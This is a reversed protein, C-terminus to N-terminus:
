HERIVYPKALGAAIVILIGVAGVGVVASGLDRRNLWRWLPDSTLALLSLMFILILAMDFKAIGRKVKMAPKQWHDFRKLLLLGPLSLPITCLFFTEWGMFQVLAGAQSVLIVRTVATLSTLLAFQTGTFQLSCVSMMFGTIAATGLGMMFQDMTVVSVMGVERWGGALANFHPMAWFTLGVLSQIVGFIWLSRKLGLKAMLSGGVLTGAISAILGAGKNVGGIVTNSFGLDLLFKTTLATAMLTSLKYIMVFILIEMAGAREFFEIFPLLVTDKIHASKMNRALKPEPSLLLVVAGLASIAAMIFYVTTWSMHDAMILAVGGSVLTAIRYGTTALGAGAGYAKPDLIETRYADVVIDQSASFFAVAFAALSFWDLHQAPDITALVCISLCLGVQSVVGWGRRLGLFPLAYRDLFPAWVFKMTYPLGVLAFLGITGVDLKASTVWAQLTAGTLALPLGSSFGLCFIILMQRNAYVALYNEFKHKV